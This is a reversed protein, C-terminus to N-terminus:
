RLLRGWAELHPSRDTAPIALESAKVVAASARKVERQVTGLPASGLAATLRAVQVLYHYGALEKTWKSSRRDRAGMQVCFVCDCHLYGDLGLLAAHSSMSAFGLTTREFYRPVIPPPPVGPRGGMRKPKTFSREAGGTGTSFGAAGWGCCMWGVLDANAIIASRREGAAVGCVAKYGELVEADALQAYPKPLSDWWFRLHWLTENSDVMANLLLARLDPRRLWNADLTLNVFMARSGAVSRGARVFEMATEISQEARTTSVLGNPSMLHTAGATLQEDFLRGIWEPNPAAPAEDLWNWERLRTRKTEIQAPHSWLEPDLLVVPAKGLESVREKTKSPTLRALPVSVGVAVSSGLEKRIASLCGGLNANLQTSRQVLLLRQGSEPFKLAKATSM